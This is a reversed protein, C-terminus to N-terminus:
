QSNSIMQFYAIHIMNGLRLYFLITKLVAFLDWIDLLYINYLLQKLEPNRTQMAVSDSFLRFRKCILNRSKMKIGCEYSIREDQRTKGSSRGCHM